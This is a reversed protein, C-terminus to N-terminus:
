GHTEGAPPFAVLRLVAGCKPCVATARPDLTWAILQACRFCSVLPVDPQPNAEGEPVLPKAPVVAALKEQQMVRYGGKSSTLQQETQSWSQFAPDVYEIFFQLLKDEAIEGTTDVLLLRNSAAMSFEESVDMGTPLTIGKSGGIKFPKRRASQM